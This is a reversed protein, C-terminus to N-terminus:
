FKDVTYKPYSLVIKSNRFQESYQIMVSELQHIDNVGYDVPDLGKLIVYYGKSEASSNIPIEKNTPDYELIYSGSTPDLLMWKGSLYIELFEHGSFSTTKSPYDYAWQVGVTDVMVVPLGYKRLISAVLVAHDHCGTLEKKSIIQNVDM